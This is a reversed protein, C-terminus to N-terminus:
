RATRGQCPGEPSGKPAGRCRCGESAGRVTGQAAERHGKLGTSSGGPRTLCVRLYVGEGAEKSIVELGGILEKFCLPNKECVLETQDSERLRGLRLNLMASAPLSPIVQHRPVEAAAAIAKEEQEELRRVLVMQEEEQRAQLAALERGIAMLRGELKAKIAEMESM